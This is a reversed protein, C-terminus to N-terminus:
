DSFFFPPFTLFTDIGFSALATTREKEQGMERDSSSFFATTSLPRSAVLLAWITYPLIFSFLFKENRGERDTFGSALQVKDNYGFSAGTGQLFGFHFRSVLLVLHNLLFFFSLFYPPTSNSVLPPVPTATTTAPIGANLM